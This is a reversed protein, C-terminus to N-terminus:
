SLPFVNRWRQGKSSSMHYILKSKVRNNVRVTNIATYGIFNNREINRQVGRLNERKRVRYGM